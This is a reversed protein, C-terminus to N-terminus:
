EYKLPHYNKVDNTIKLMWGISILTIVLLGISIILWLPLWPIFKKYDMPVNFLFGLVTYLLVTILGMSFITPLIIVMLFEITFIQWIQNKRAGIQYISDIIRMRELYTSRATLIGLFITLLSILASLIILFIIKYSNIDELFLNTMQEKTYSKLKYNETLISQLSTINATDDIKLLFYNNEIVICDDRINNVLKQITYKNAVIALYERYPYYKNYQKQNLLPFYDFYNVYEMDLVKPTTMIVSTFIENKDYNNKKAYRANMLFAMRRDLQQIDELTFRQNDLSSFDIVEIFETVNHINFIQITYKPEDSSHGPNTEVTIHSVSTIKEVEALSSLNSMLEFKETSNVDILLDSCGVALSAELQIHDNISKNVIIGPTLGLGIVFLVLITKRFSDRYLSLHKLSLSFISLRNQWIKKGLYGWILSILRALISFIGALFIMIGIIMLLYILFNKSISESDLFQILDKFILILFAIAFISIGSIILAYEETRAIKSFKKKRQEKYSLSVTGTIKKILKLDSFYNIIFIVLPLALSSFYFPSYTFVNYFPDSIDIGLYFFYGIFMGIINGILIGCVISFSKEILIMRKITPYQIGTAFMTQYKIKKEFQGYDFIETSSYGLIFILPMSWSLLQLTERAWKEEFDYFVSVLDFCLDLRDYPFGFTLEQQKNLSLIKNSTKGINGILISSLEYKYDILINMNFFSNEFNNVASYFYQENTFFIDGFNTSIWNGFWDYYSYNQLLGSLYGFESFLNFFEEDLIGIITFNQSTASGFESTCLTVIDHLSYNLTLEQGKLYLLETHNQPLRGEALCYELVEYVNNQLSCLKVDIDLTSKDFDSYFLNATIYATFNSYIGPFQQNIYDNMKNVVPTFFDERPQRSTSYLFYLGNSSYRNNLWNDDKFSTNHFFKVKYNFWSVFFTTFITFIIVMILINVLIRKRNIKLFIKSLSFISKRDYNEKNDSKGYNDDRYNL